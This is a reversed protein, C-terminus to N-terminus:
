EGQNRVTIFVGARGPPPEGPEYSLIGNVYVRRIGKAPVAPHAYDEEANLENKRFLVLDAYAGPRIVGRNKLGFTEAPLATMRRIVKEAPSHACAMRFFRAMTGFKRPHGSPVEFTQIGADSGPMIWDQALIRDLNEACMTGTMAIPEPSEALIAACLEGISCGRLAAAEPITRGLLPAHETAPSSAFIVRDWGCSPEFSAVSDALKRREAPDDRLLRHAEECSMQSYPAPMCMRFGTGAYLYPYRDGAIRLGEARKKELLEFAASLKHWNAREMTKFHSLQLIGDGARAIACAEELSELLTDGESRIHAACPKGTGRLAGAIEAAEETKSYIGSYYWLGISFGAAGQELAEELLARMAATESRSAPRAQDKMTLARLTNHGALAAINVSPRVSALQAAYRDLHIRGDGAFETFGCNGVIETTVGQSIKNDAGPMALIDTDSHSHVDIFGPALADGAADFAPGSSGASSGAPLVAEIMGDSVAVDGAFPPAGTGDFIEANRIVFSDKM